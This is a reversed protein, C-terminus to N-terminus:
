NLVIFNRRLKKLYKNYADILKDIIAKIEPTHISIAGKNDDKYM